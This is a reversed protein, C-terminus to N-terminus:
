VRIFGDPNAFIASDVAITGLLDHPNAGAAKIAEILGAAASMSIMPNKSVPM